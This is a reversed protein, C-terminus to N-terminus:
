VLNIELFDLLTYLIVVSDYCHNQYMKLAWIVFSIQCENMGSERRVSEWAPLSCMRQPLYLIVIYIADSKSVSKSQAM